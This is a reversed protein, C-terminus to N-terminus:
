RREEYGLGSFPDESPHMPTKGDPAWGIAGEPLEREEETAKKTEELEIDRALDGLPTNAWGQKKIKENIDKESTM